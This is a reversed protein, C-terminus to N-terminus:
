LATVGLSQGIDELLAHLTDASVMTDSPLRGGAARAHGGGAFRTEMLRAADVKQSTRASVRGDSKLFVVLDVGQSQLAHAVENVPGEAELLVGALRYSGVYLLEAQQVHHLVFDQEERILVALEEGESPTYPTWGSSFRQQFWTFGKAHFLRNLNQGEIHDPLWLDYREVAHVLRQWAITPQLWGQDLAYAYMLHCGSRSMDITTKIDDQLPLASQHHDLLHTVCQRLREWHQAPVSVDALYVAGPEPLLSELTPVVRDPECFVPTLGCSIGVVAATAGDLCHQHTILFGRKQQEM